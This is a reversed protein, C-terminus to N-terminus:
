KVRGSGEQGWVSHGIKWFSDAVLVDLMSKGMASTLPPYALTSLLYASAHYWTQGTTLFNFDMNTRNERSKPWESLNAKKSFPAVFSVGFCDFM